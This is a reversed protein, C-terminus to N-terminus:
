RISPDLVEQVDSILDTKNRLIKQKDSTKFEFDTIFEM